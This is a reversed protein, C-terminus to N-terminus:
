TLSGNFINRKSTSFRHRFHNISSDNNERFTFKDLIKPCEGGGGGGRTFGGGGGRSSTVSIHM